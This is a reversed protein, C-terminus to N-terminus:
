GRDDLRYRTMPDDIGISDCGISFIGRQCPSRHHLEWPRVPMPFLRGGFTWEKSWMAMLAFTCAQSMEWVGRGSAVRSTTMKERDRM